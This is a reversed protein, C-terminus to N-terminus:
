SLELDSPNDVLLLRRRIRHLIVVFVDQVGRDIKMYDLVKRMM